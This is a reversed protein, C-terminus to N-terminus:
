SFAPLAYTVTQVLSRCGYPHKIICFPTKYPSENDFSLQLINLPPLKIFFLTNAATNAPTIVNDSTAQPLLEADEDLLPDSELLLLAASVSAAPDSAAAASSVAAAADPSVYLM